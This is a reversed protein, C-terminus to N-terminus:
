TRSAEVQAHAQGEFLIFLKKLEENVIKIADKRWQHAPQILDEPYASVHFSEHTLYFKGGTGLSGMFRWEKTPYRLPRETVFRVQANVFDERMSEHAGVHKVLADFVKEFLQRANM